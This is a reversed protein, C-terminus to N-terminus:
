GETQTTEPDTNMPIPLGIRLSVDRDADYTIAGVEIGAGVSSAGVQPALMSVLGPKNDGDYFQITIDDKTIELIQHQVRIESVVNIIPNPPNELEMHHLDTVYNLTIKGDEAKPTYAYAIYCEAGIAYSQAEAVYAWHRASYLPNGHEDTDVPVNPEENAWKDAKEVAADQSDKNAAVILNIKGIETEMLVNAASVQAIAVDRAAEARDACQCAAQREGYALGVYHEAESVSGAAATASNEAAVASDAAAQASAAAADRSDLINQVIEEPSQDSTAPVTLARAIRELLQQREACAVDLAEEVVQPDWLAASILDVRQQFPMDRTIALKTGSPIPLGGLTYTVSGGSLDENLVITADDSVDSATGDAAGFTVQIQSTEWVKFTFPFQTTLGNGNYVVKSIKSEITM